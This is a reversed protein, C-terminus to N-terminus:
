AANREKRFQERHKKLRLYHERAAGVMLGRDGHELRGARKEKERLADMAENCAQRTDLLDSEIEPGKNWTIFGEETPNGGVSRCYNAFRKRKKTSEDFVSSSSAPAMNGVPLSSGM